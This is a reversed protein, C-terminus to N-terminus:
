ETHTRDQLNTPHNHTHDITIEPNILQLVEIHPHDAIHYIQHTVTLNIATAEILSTCNDHAAGITAADIGDKSHCRNSDHHSLSCHKQFHFQSRSQSRRDREECHHKSSSRIHHSRPLKHHIVPTESPPIKHPCDM